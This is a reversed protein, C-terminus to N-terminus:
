YKVHPTTAIVRRFFEVLGDAYYDFTFEERRRRVNEWLRVMRPRDRLQEALQAADTFFLGLDRSRALAQTAFIAEGNEQQILPLGAVLLTALRAPYNLDDWNARSLKGGNTSEFLHLWGADYKSFESVWRDQLVIPHEHLHEPAARRAEQLWLLWSGKFEGYIHLHINQRALECIVSPHLGMPRGALVTHVQGDDESLRRAPQADLWDRKPLDGDLVMSPRRASEPVEAHFWDRLEPSSYICGGSLTHLDVLQRWTGHDRCHFPGEKLHWVFPVGPNNALVHHAFPVARWNLLAYIVDPRLREVAERWGERPIDEVHGFPLPGVTNMSGPNPMWLGYLKHGREELALVREPNFALEGVLLIKLGDEAPPTDPRERFRWYLDVEDYYNGASSHFRLPRRVNYRARYPNLGGNRYPDNDDGLDERVVKHRQRLHDMWMCTVMESGVVRGRARLRSWLMRELDDTTLEKREVWRDPTLRHMVQALQLPYGSIAEWARQGAHHQVGSYAMVADPERDLLAALSELHDPLFLDDSPLYAILPANACEIGVNLAAGLGDNCGLRAPLIRRDGADGLYPEVAELTEDPSGDIIIILEWEALTQNVLSDISHAISDAQNFTPM